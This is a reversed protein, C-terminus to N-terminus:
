IETRFIEAVTISFGPLVAAGDLTDTEMLVRTPEDSPHDYVAVTRTKPYVFWALRTRSEFYEKLKRRMEAKTNSDSIVEIALTPPLLPVSQTPVKGGPLDDVSIFSVDPLRINGTAMRITADPGVVVGLRRADVFNGILKALKMAILAELFGVPKEVLTGDVLEVLKDREVHWLLDKETATGPPPTMVIRNSPIDGLARLWEEANEYKIAPSTATLVTM